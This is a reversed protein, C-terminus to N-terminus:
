RDTGVLPITRAIEYTLAAQVKNEIQFYRAVKKQPLVKRFKPLYTQYLKLRLTEITMYEDLLKGATKDSMNEFADKYDGLLKATRSRILFLENQFREYVPWFAKAESETLQMNEAVLLRKDARLKQVVIQMNDTEKEQAPVPAGSL